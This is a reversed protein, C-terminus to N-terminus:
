LCNTLAVCSARALYNHLLWRNHLMSSSVILACVLAWTCKLLRLSETIMSVKLYDIYQQKSARHQLQLELAANDKERAAAAVCLQEVKRTAYTIRGGLVEIGARQVVLNM